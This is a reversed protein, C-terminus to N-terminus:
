LLPYESILAFGLMLGSAIVWKPSAGTKIQFGIYFAGFLLVTVLQHSYFHELLPFCQRWAM